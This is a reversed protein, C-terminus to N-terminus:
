CNMANPAFREVLESVLAVADPTLIKRTNPCCRARFAFAPAVITQAPASM